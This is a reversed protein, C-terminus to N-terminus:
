LGWEKLMKQAEPCQGTSANRTHIDFGTALSWSSLDAFEKHRVRWPVGLLALAGKGQKYYVNHDIVFGQNLPDYIRDPTQKQAVTFAEETAFHANDAPHRGYFGNDYWLGIAYGANNLSLNDTIVHGTNHFAIRGTDTDNVRPGQERMTIGDQNGISINHELRCNESEALVFGGDAWSPRPGVVRGNNSIALCHDVNIHHSIEVFLGSGENQAFTCHTVKVDHVWVDLWLGPGGNRLFLCHDFLGNKTAGQKVGGADWGRDILKWCNEEWRDDRNVFGDGVASGGTQGCRRVTSHTLSGNVSVGSGAMDEVVCHDIVNRDGHLWVAARQPFSAGYRFVFGSVQVDHIGAKSQWPNVGFIQARTAAEMQHKSPDSGNVLWVYMRHHVTDAAFAGALGIHQGRTPEPLFTEAPRKTHALWEARLGDLGLTPLLQHGDSIVQEARGWRPADDPHAEVPVGNHTDIAFLHDWNVEYIPADDLLRTWGSIPDAGTLIAKGPVEAVFRIPAGPAGSHKLNVEERYLGPLVHITDNPRSQDAAHAITRWPHVRSGDLSDDGTPSVYMTRGALAVVALPLLLM